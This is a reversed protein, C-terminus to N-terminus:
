SIRLSFLMTRIVLGWEYDSMPLADHEYQDHYESDSAHGPVISEARPARRLVLGVHYSSGCLRADASTRSVADRRRVRCGPRLCSCSVLCRIRRCCRTRCTFRGAARSCLIIHLIGIERLVLDCPLVLGILAIGVDLGYQYQAHVIGSAHMLLLFVSVGTLAICDYKRRMICRSVSYLKKQYRSIGHRRDHLLVTLCADYLRIRIM